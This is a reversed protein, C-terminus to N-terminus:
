LDNNSRSPNIVNSHLLTLPSRARPFDLVPSCLNLTLPFCNLPYSLYLNKVCLTMIIHFSIDSSTTCNCSKFPMHVHMPFSCLPRTCVFPILMSLCWPRPLRSPIFPKNRHQGVIVWEIVWQCYIDMWPWYRWRSGSPLLAPISFCKTNIKWNFLSNLWADVITIM